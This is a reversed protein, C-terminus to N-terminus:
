STKKITWDGHAGLSGLTGIHGLCWQAGLAGLAGLAEQAGLDVENGESGVPGALGWNEKSGCAGRLKLKLPGWIGWTAWAYSAGMAMVGLAELVGM